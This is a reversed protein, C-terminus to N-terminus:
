RRRTPTTRDVLCGVAVTPTSSPILVVSASVTVIYKGQVLHPHQVSSFIRHGPHPRQRRHPCGYKSPSSFQSSSLLRSSPLLVLLTRVFLLATLRHCTECFLATAPNRLSERRKELLLGFAVLYRSWLVAWPSAPDAAFRNRAVAM